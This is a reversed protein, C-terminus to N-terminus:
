AEKIAELGTLFIRISELFYDMFSVQFIALGEEDVVLQVIPAPEALHHVGIILVYVHLVVARGRGPELFPLCLEILDGIKAMRGALLQKFHLAAYFDINRELITHLIAVLRIFTSRNQLTAAMRTVFEDITCTGQSDHIMTLNAEIESFWNEFEQTLLDLFLEEKTRFYLYVTGKAIGARRAVTDMNVADYSISEFLEFAASLISQRREEKQQDSIARRKIVM